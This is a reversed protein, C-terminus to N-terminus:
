WELAAAHRIIQEIAEPYAGGHEHMILGHHLTLPTKRGRIARLLIRNAPKDPKPYLPLIEVAGFLPHQPNKGLCAALLQPLADARHILTLTGGTKLYSAAQKLWDGYNKGTDEGGHARRLGAESSPQHQLADLFPPNTVVQDFVQLLSDPPTFYNGEVWSFRARTKPPIKSQTQPSASLYSASQQALALYDGNMDLGTISFDMAHCRAALCLSIGGTGCGADLIKQGQKPTIAAALLPTDVAVRYGELPQLITVKGGLLYDITHPLDTIFTM